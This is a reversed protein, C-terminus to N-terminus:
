VVAVEEVEFDPRLGTASGSGSPTTTAQGQAAVTIPSSPPQCAPAAPSMTGDTAGAEASASVKLVAAHNTACAVERPLRPPPLPRRSRGNAARQSKMRARMHAVCVSVASRLGGSGHKCVSFVIPVCSVLSLLWGLALGGPPFPYGAVITSRLSWITLVFLTAPVVYQLDFLLLRPVQVKTMRLTDAAFQEAGYIWCVGVCEIAGCLFLTITVSFTDFLDLWHLGGRTVFVLGILAMGGCVLASRQAKSWTPLVAADQLGTLVTEVMAFQSDVGLCIVMVFFLVAFLNAGYMQSLASPYAVFALGSGQLRLDEVEVGAETAMFGLVSFVVLGALFSTGCNILPVLWADRMYNHDAENYSAFAILTGWGVGTSYFIQSAAAIWVKPDGLRDFRPELYFRLGASAGRLTLGRILLVALVFYPFIATFWAVKGLSEIGKSVCLWIVFWGLALCGVLPGVLGGTEWLNPARAEVDAWSTVNVWSCSTRNGRCGLTSVEWFDIAGRTSNGSDDWALPNGFSNGLFWLAWAVIVNYYLAVFFTAMTGAIGIGGLAPHINAWAQSAAIQLKQGVFLEMAFLPMGIVLLVLTYPVLFAGGGHLYCLYPFRWFNGLGVAYGICTITFEM